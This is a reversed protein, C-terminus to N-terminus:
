WPLEILTAESAHHAVVLVTSVGLNADSSDLRAAIDADSYRLRIIGSVCSTWNSLLAFNADITIEENVSSQFRLAAKVCGQITM